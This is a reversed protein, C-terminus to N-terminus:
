FEQTCEARHGQRKWHTKRCQHDCYMVDTRRPCVVCREPEPKWCETNGCCRGEAQQPGINAWSLSTIKTQVDIRVAVHGAALPRPPWVATGLRGNLHAAATLGMIQVRTGAPYQPTLDGLLDQALPHAQDYALKLLRAAETHDQPVGTSKYYMLGFLNIQAQADGQDAALRYWRAAETDDQSVGTGDAYM